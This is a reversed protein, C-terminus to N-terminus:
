VYARLCPPPPQGVVSVDSVFRAAGGGVVAQHVRWMWSGCAARVVDAGMGTSTGPGAALKCVWYAAGRWNLATGPLKRPSATLLFAAVVTACVALCARRWLLPVALVPFHLREGAVGGYRARAQKDM